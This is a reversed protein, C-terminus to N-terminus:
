LLLVLLFVAIIIGEVEALVKLNRSRRESKALTDESKQLLPEIRAVTAESSELKSSAQELDVRAQKLTQVLALSEEESLISNEELQNLLGDIQSLSTSISDSSSTPPPEELPTDQGHASLICLLSLFASLSVFLIVKRCM